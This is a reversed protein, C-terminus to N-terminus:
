CFSTYSMKMLLDKVMLSCNIFREICFNAQELDIIKETHRNNKSILILEKATRLAGIEVINDFDAQWPWFTTIGIVTAPNVLM